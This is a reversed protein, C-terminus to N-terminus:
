EEQAPATEQPPALRSAERSRMAAQVLEHPPVIVGGSIAFRLAQEVTIPLDVIESVPVFIVYGTIPTPSSPIFIHVHEDGSAENITRFGMGTVFGISWIGKRPYQVAVVTHFRLRKETLLFDTVQKVYPYIVKVVPLKLLFQEGAGIVRRGLLSPALAGVVLAVVIVVLIALADGAVVMPVEAAPRGLIAGVGRALFQGLNNHVFRLLIFLIYGTLVTPLLTALGALLM